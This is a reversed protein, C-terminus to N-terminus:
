ENELEALLKMWSAEERAPDFLPVLRSCHELLQALFNANSEARAMLQALGRTDGVQFYGPYGDGLIGVSGPIRSALVPTGAVIAEGLANAGGEM